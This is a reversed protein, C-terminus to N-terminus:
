GNSIVLLLELDSLSTLFSSFDEAPVWFDRTFDHFRPHFRFDRTFDRFRPHFRFDRTFDSIVPSIMFDRQQFWFDPLFNFDRVGSWRTVPGGRGFRNECSSAVLWGLSKNRAWTPFLNCNLSTDRCGALKEWGIHDVWSLSHRYVVCNSPRKSCPCYLVRLHIPFPILIRISIRFDHWFDTYRAFLRTTQVHLQM